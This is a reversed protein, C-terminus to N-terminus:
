FISIPYRKACLHKPLITIGAWADRKDGSPWFVLWTGALAVELMNMYPVKQCVPAKTIYHGWGVCGEQRWALLFRAMHCGVATEAYRYPAVKLTCTSQYLVSGLGYGGGQRWALLFRAMRCGFATEAYRYPAVKLTCTSQYLVTVLGLGYGRKDGRSCFVLWTAALPRKLM